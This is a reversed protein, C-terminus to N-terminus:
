AEDPEINEEIAMDKFESSEFVDGCEQCEVFEADEERAVVRVRPHKCPKEMPIPDPPRRPIPSNQSPNMNPDLRVKASAQERIAPIKLRDPRIDLTEARQPLAM